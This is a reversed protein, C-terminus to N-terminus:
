RRFRRNLPRKRTKIKYHVIAMYANACGAFASLKPMICYSIFLPFVHYQDINNEDMGWLGPLSTNKTAKSSKNIVCCLTAKSLLYMREEQNVFHLAKINDACILFGKTIHYDQNHGLTNEFVFFSKDVGNSYSKVTVIAEQNPIFWFETMQRASHNIENSIRVIRGTIQYEDM